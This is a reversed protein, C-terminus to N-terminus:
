RNRGAVEQEFAILAKVAKSERETWESEQKTWESEQKAQDVIDGLVLLDEKSLRELAM